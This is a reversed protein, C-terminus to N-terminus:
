TGARGEAAGVAAPFPRLGRPPPRPAAGVAPGATKYGMVDPPVLISQCVYSTVVRAPDGEGAALRADTVNAPRSAMKRGQHGCLSINFHHFYKLGKATFSPGSAFATGAALASFDYHLIRGPLALSFSCNNYCLSRLQNSHTGPGCPHCAPIGDSPHGRLYTGPPCPVMFYLECSVSCVTEFVFTIRAVEKSEADELVPSPPCGRQMRM